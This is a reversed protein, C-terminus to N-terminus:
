SLRFISLLVFDQQREKDFDASDRGALTALAGRLDQRKRGRYIGGADM